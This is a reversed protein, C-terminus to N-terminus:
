QNLIRKQNGQDCNNTDTGHGEETTFGGVLEAGDTVRDVLRDNLVRDVWEQRRDPSQACPWVVVVDHTTTGPLFLLAM